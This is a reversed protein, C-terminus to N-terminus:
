GLLIGRKSSGDGGQIRVVPRDSWRKLIRDKNLVKGAGPEAPSSIAFVASVLVILQGDSASSIDLAHRITPILTRPCMLNTNADPKLVKGVSRQGNSHSVPSLNIVGSAGFSPNLVLCADDTELIESNESKRPDSIAFGGEVTHIPIGKPQNLNSLKIQHVRIHWDPWRNSPPILSTHIELDEIYWPKWSFALSPIEEGYTTPVTGSSSQEVRLTEMRAEGVTRWKLKWSSGGDRSLALANDPAIQQIMPGTPVSFGFASSYAFKCYKAESAKIPWGCYQEASLLFHHNGSTHNCLIQGPPRIYRTSPSDSSKNAFPHPLEESTWFEDHAPLAVAILTKLCWYVSQPSNYDECLYMNPYLYGTNMTGDPYFIDDSHNAWWRLHRLLFGKVAGVSSLPSPMNPVGAVALASFFAGFSFRYTLSRGFPIAAGDEDFYRWFERGFSRAWARYKEARAPDLDAAFKAYLLQSFQIAFSGSYYDVKRGQGTVSPLGGFDIESIKEQIKKDFDEEDAASSWKGDSSWGDGLDFSDLIVLDNEMEHKVEEYSVGCVKVLAVNSLVRFWRWNNDPMPKGNMCKLWSTINHRATEPQSHYFLEPASLLAYSIIEAEVMRQDINEFYGWFEPHSPDTGNAIGELWPAVLQLLRPDDKAEEGSALAGALIAGVAWLPRAYGELQAATEDFHTGTTVPLRIRGGGESTHNKLPELLAYIATVVDERTRFPNDSFGKLPPM